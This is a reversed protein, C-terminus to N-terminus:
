NSALKVKMGRAPNSRAQLVECYSVKESVKVVRVRAVTQGPVRELIEGTVPDTLEEGETKVDLIMGPKFNHRAGRNIIVRGSKVLVVNGTVPAQEAAEAFYNAIQIICDQTAEGIPTNNFSGVKGGLGRGSIGVNVKNSRARGVVRKEVVVEGTTMDILKAIVTVTANKKLAGVSIGGIHVAGNTGSENMEIETVEGTALFRATRLKGTRAMRSKSARGSSALDQENMVIDLKEREVLTFRGTDELASQLMITMNRPVEWWNKHGSHTFEKVAVAHKVGQYRSSQPTDGDYTATHTKRPRLAKNGAMAPTAAALVSTMAFVLALANRAM